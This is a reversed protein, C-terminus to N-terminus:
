KRSYKNYSSYYDITMLNMLNLCKGRKVINHPSYSKTWEANGNADEKSILTTTTSDQACYYISGSNGIIVDILTVSTYSTDNYAFQTSYQKSSIETDPPCTIASVSKLINILLMIFVIIKTKQFAKDM